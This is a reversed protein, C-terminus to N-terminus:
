RRKKDLSLERWAGRVSTRAITDKSRRGSIRVRLRGDSLLACVIGIRNGWQPSIYETLDGIQLAAAEIPLRKDTRM